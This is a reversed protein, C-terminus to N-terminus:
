HVIESGSANEFTRNPSARRNKTLRYIVDTIYAMVLLAGGMLVLVGHYSDSWYKVADALCLLGFASLYGVNLWRAFRSNILEFVMGLIPLGAQLVFEIEDKTYITARNFPDGFFSIFIMRVVLGNAFLVWLSRFGRKAIENLAM